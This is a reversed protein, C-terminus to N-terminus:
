AARRKKLLTCILGGSLVMVMLYMLPHQSDGTPPPPQLGFYNNQFAACVANVPVGDLMTSAVVKNDTNVEVSISIVYEQESYVVNERGDNIEKLCYVYTKGADADSFPLIVSADGNKDATLIIREQNGTNELVFQFGEPGISTLGTSHVTKKVAVLVNSGDPTFYPSDFTNVLSGTRNAIYALTAPAMFGVVLAVSFLIALMLAPKRINM